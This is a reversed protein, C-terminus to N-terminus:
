GKVLRQVVNIGDLMQVRLLYVGAEFQELNIINGEGSLVTRGNLDVVTWNQFESAISIQFIGDSPNPYVQIYDPVQEGISVTNSNSVTFYDFGAETINVTSPFDSIESEFSCIPLQRL